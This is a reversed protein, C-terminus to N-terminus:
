SMTGSLLQQVLQLSNVVLVSLDDAAYGSTLLVGDIEKMIQMLKEDSTANRELDGGLAVFCVPDMLRAIQMGCQLWIHWAMSQSRSLHGKSINGLDNVLVTAQRKEEATGVTQFLSGSAM